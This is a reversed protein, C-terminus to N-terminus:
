IRIPVIRQMIKPPGMISMKVEKSAIGKEEISASHILTTDLPKPQTIRAKPIVITIFDSAPVPGLSKTAM